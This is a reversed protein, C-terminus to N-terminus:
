TSACRLKKVEAKSLAGKLRGVATNLYADELMWNFVSEAFGAPVENFPTWSDMEYDKLAIENARSSTCYQDFARLLMYNQWGNYLDIGFLFPGLPLWYNPYDSM